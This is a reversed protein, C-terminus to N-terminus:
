NENNRFEIRERDMTHTLLSLFNRDIEAEDGSELQTSFINLLEEADENSFISVEGMDHSKDSALLDKSKNANITEVISAGTLQTSQMGLLEISYNSSAFSLSTLALMVKWQIKM